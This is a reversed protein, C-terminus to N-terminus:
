WKNESVMKYKAFVVGDKKVPITEIINGEARLAFIIASLRTAKFKTFAEMYTITKGNLLLNRVQEIKTKKM